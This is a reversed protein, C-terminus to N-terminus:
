DASTPRAANLDGLVQEPKWDNGRYVKLVRGDPGILATRLSHVIQGSEQWYRLGFFEAVKKVEDASGTAMEWHSFDETGGDPVFQSAYARMVQPTDNQPDITVSLLHTRAILAPDKKLANEIEAFNNSMLPCYDPLPCRTYIFTLLLTKGRYQRFHIRGGDQNVLTFDPVADGPGAEHAGGSQGAQPDPAAAEQTIVIRELWSHGGDVVLEANVTDGPQLVGFAWDDKLAFSMTMASMYGTIDEHAITVKRVTKDVSVVKGKLDYRHENSKYIFRCGFSCAAVLLALVPLRWFSLRSLPTPIPGTRVNGVGTSRVNRESQDGRSM